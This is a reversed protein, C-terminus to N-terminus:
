QATQVDSEGEIRELESPWFYLCEGNDMQVLAQLNFPPYDLITGTQGILYDHNKGPKHPASSPNGIWAVRVREGNNLFAAMM